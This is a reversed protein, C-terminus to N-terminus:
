QFKFNIPLTYTVRVPQGNNKGPNWKPMNRVVRVAEADLAPHKGRLVKVDSISGDKEVVFQVTVKGSVGEEAALQPYSINFGLWRYMESEGGPFSPKQEVMALNYVNNDPSSSPKQSASSEDDGYSNNSLHRIDDKAEVYSEYFSRFEDDDPVAPAGDYMEEESLYYDDDSDGIYVTDEDWYVPEETVEECSDVAWEYDDYYDDYDYSSDFVGSAYLIAFTIVAGVAILLLWLWWLSKRRPTEYEYDYTNGFSIQSSAGSGEPDEDVPSVPSQPTPPEPPLPPQSATPPLPPPLQMGGGNNGSNAGVSSTKDVKKLEKLFQGVTDHRQKRSLAMAKEIPAILHVPFGAPYQMETDFRLTSQPPVKGTLMYYLTAALSYLDTQPSFESVGGDTYQEIPAYGHSIGTPTTSTQNGEKDYQKSLGFDILIPTNDSTRVMINAPKVDLHTMKHSHVYDLANGVKQAFELATSESLPGNKKIIESLSRGEIYDMVYYATNNEEFSSLIKIIGPHQLRAINRAEKLFKAKLRDILDENTRTAVAMRSTDGERDCYEKPFFEKIAVRRDLNVDVALYTIGFGGQGLVKEIRYAGNHLLKGEELFM